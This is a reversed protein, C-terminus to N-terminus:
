LMMPQDPLQNAASGDDPYLRQLLENLMGMAAIVSEHFDGRTFGETMRRCIAQWQAADVQRGVGRDAVIEVQRDALNIYVLVGCNEETDWIGHEAFLRRARDRPQLGAFIEHPALAAEIILRVEARHRTEGETIAAHITQLSETPFARRASGSGTLLHRFFRKLM